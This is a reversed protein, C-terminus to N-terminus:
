GDLEKQAKQWKNIWTELNGSRWPESKKVKKKKKKLVVDMSNAETSLKAADTSSTPLETASTSNTDMSAMESYFTALELSINGPAKDNNSDVGSATEDCTSSISPPPPAILLGDEDLRPQGSTSDDGNMKRTLPRQELKLQEDANPPPTTCIDMEVADDSKSDCEPYEWRIVGTSVNKYCYQSKKRNWLCKWGTPAADNELTSLDHSIGDLWRQMYAPQLAQNDYAELLTEFQIFIAQVASIDPRGNCLFKLKSAIITRLESIEALHKNSEDKVAAEKEDVTQNEVTSVVTESARVFNSYMSKTGEENKKTADSNVIDSEVASADDCTKGAVESSTSPKVPVTPRTMFEIRRKRKFTKVDLNEAPTDIHAPVNPQPEVETVEPRMLEILENDTQPPSSRGGTIISAFTNTRCKAKPTKTETEEATAVNAPLDTKLSYIKVTSPDTALTSTLSAFLPKDTRTKNESDSNEDSNYDNAVLNYSTTVKKSKAEEESSSDSKTSFSSILEIKVHDLDDNVDFPYKKSSKEPKKSKKKKGNRSSDETPRKKSKKLKTSNVKEKPEVFGAPKEWSVQRTFENVYYAVNEDSYCVTYSNEKKPNKMRLNQQLFNDYEEPMHWTTERTFTNWYYPLGSSKDICQTWNTTVVSNVDTLFEQLKDNLQNSTSDNDDNESDSNYDGLLLSLSNGAVNQGAM